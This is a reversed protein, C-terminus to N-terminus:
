RFIEAIYKSRINIHVNIGYVTWIESHKLRDSKPLATYLGVMKKFFEQLLTVNGWSWSKWLMWRSRKCRQGTSHPSELQLHSTRDEIPNKATTRVSTLKM